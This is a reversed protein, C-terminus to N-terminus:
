EYISSLGYDLLNNGPIKCEPNGHWKGDSGCTVVKDSDATLELGDICTVTLSSNLTTPGNADVTYTNSFPEHKKCDICSVDVTTNAFKADTANEIEGVIVACTFVGDNECAVPLFDVSISVGDDEVNYNATINEDHKTFQVSGTANSLLYIASNEGSTPSAKAM